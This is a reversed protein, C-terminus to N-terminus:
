FFLGRFNLYMEATLLGRQGPRGEGPSFCIGRGLGTASALVSGGGALLPSQARRGTYPALWTRDPTRTNGGDLSRVAERTRGFRQRGYGLATGMKAADSGDKAHEM